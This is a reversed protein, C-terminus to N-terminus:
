SVKGVSHFSGFTDLFQEFEGLTLLILELAEKIIDKLMPHVPGDKILSILYNCGM